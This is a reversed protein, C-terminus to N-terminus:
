GEPFEELVHKLSDVTPETRVATDDSLEIGLHAPKIRVYLIYRYM